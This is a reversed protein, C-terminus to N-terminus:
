YEKSLQIKLVLFNGEYDSEVSEVVHGDPLNYIRVFNRDRSSLILVRDVEDEIFISKQLKQPIETTIIYETTDKSGKITSDHISYIEEGWSKLHNRRLSLYLPLISSLTFIGYFFLTTLFAKTPNIKTFIFPFLVFDSEGSPVLSYAITMIGLFILTIGSFLFLPAKILGRYDYMNKACKVCSDNDDDYCYDCVFKGCKKCLIDASPRGCIHCKRQM